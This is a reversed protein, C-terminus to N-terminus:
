PVLIVIDIDHDICEFLGAIVGLGQADAVKGVLHFAIWLYFSQCIALVIWEALWAVEWIANRQVGGIDVFVEFTTSISCVFSIRLSVYIM